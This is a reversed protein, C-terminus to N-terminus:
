SSRCTAWMAPLSLWTALRRGLMLAQAAILVDCDLERPDGTPTGRNRAQAWLLAALRLTADTLPVYRDSEAQNFQDLLQLSRGNNRRILERRVEYDAISPVVLRHGAQALKRSWRLIDTSAPSQVPHVLVGFPGSDLVIVRSM